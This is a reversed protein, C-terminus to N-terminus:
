ISFIIDGMMILRVTSSTASSNGSFTIIGCGIIMDSFSAPSYSLCRLSASFKIITLLNRLRNLCINDAPNVATLVAAILNMIKVYHVAVSNCIEKKSVSGSKNNINKIANDECDEGVCDKQEKGILISSAFQEIQLKTYNKDLNSSLTMAIKNCKKPDLLNVMDRFRDTSALKTDPQTYPLLLDNIIDDIKVQFNNINEDLDKSKFVSTIKDILNSFFGAM